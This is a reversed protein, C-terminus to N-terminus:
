LLVDRETFKMVWVQSDKGDESTAHTLENLIAVSRRFSNGTLLIAVDGPSFVSM